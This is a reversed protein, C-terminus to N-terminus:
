QLFLPTIYQPLINRHLLIMCASGKNNEYLQVYIVLEHHSIVKLSIILFIFFTAQVTHLVFTLLFIRISKYYTKKGFTM